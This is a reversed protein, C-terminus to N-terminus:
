NVFDFMKFILDTGGEIDRREVALPSIDGDLIKMVVIDITEVRRLQVNYSMSLHPLCLFNEVREDVMNEVNDATRNREFVPNDFRLPQADEHEFASFNPKLACHPFPVVPRM